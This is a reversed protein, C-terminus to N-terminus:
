QGVIYKPSMFFRETVADSRYLFRKELYNLLDYFITDRILIQFVSISLIGMTCRSRLFCVVVPLLISLIDGIFM